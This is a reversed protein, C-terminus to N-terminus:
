TACVRWCQRACRQIWGFPAHGWILSYPSMPPLGAKARAANISLMATEETYGLTLVLGDWVYPDTRRIQEDRSIQLKKKTGDPATEERWVAGNLFGDLFLLHLKKLVDPNDSHMLVGKQIVMCATNEMTIYKTLHYSFAESNPRYSGLICCILGLLNFSM